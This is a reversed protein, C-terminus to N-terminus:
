LNIIRNMKEKDLLNLVKLNEVYLRQNEKQFLSSQSGNNNNNNLDNYKKNNDSNDLDEL